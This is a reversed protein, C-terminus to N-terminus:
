PTVGAVRLVAARLDEPLAAWASVLALLRPDTSDIRRGRGLADHGLGPLNKPV